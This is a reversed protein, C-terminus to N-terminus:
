VIGLYLIDQFHASIEMPGQSPIQVRPKNMPLQFVNVTQTHLAVRTVKKRILLSCRVMQCEGSGSVVGGWYKNINVLPSNQAGRM